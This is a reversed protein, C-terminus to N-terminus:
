PAPDFEAKVYTQADITVVCQMGSPGPCSDWEEFAWGSYPSATLTVVTGRSVTFDCYSPGSCTGVDPSTTVSGGDEVNISLKGQTGIGPVTPVQPGTPPPGVVPPKIMRGPGKSSGGCSAALLALLAVTLIRLKM